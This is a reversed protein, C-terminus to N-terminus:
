EGKLKGVVKQTLSTADEESYGLEAMAEAYAEFVKSDPVEHKITSKPSGILQNFLWEISASSNSTVLHEHFRKAADDLMSGDTLQGPRTTLFELLENRSPLIVKPKRGPSGGRKLNQPNGKPNAM